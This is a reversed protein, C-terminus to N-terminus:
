SASLPLSRRVAMAVSNLAVEVTRPAAESRGSRYARKEAIYDRNTIEDPTLGALVQRL